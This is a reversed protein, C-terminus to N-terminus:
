DQPEPVSPHSREPDYGELPVWQLDPWSADVDSVDEGRLFRRIAGAIEPHTTVQEHGANRVVLHTANPMGWRLQEAQFPPTNWDLTGSLLLARVDSVLPSRFDDGLDPVDWAENWLPM